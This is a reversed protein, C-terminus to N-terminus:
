AHLASTLSDCHVTIAFSTLTVLQYTLPPWLGWSVRVKTFDYRYIRATGLIHEPLEDQGNGQVCLCAM